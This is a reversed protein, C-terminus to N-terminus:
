WNKLVNIIIALCTLIHLLVWFTRMVAIVDAKNDDNFAKTGLAKCWYTWSKKLFNNKKQLLM